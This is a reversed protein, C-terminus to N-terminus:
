GTDQPDRRTASAGERREPPHAQREVSPVQPRSSLRASPGTAGVGRRARSAAAPDPAGVREVASAVMEGLFGAVFCLTGVTVLLMVLYILPRYGVGAVFRLYSAALGVAVGALVFTLGPIGFALMPKRSLRVQFWVAALDLLGVFIRGTGSYKSKGAMRPHLDVDIETASCGAAYAMVVFFRHWDHRLRVMDLIDARFAKMSNLDSVPVAFVRRSLANYISSVARKDYAGVKRATVIDWGEDLKDLFRPIEQPLHQLDADFLVIYKKDTAAAATLLAETKGMNARHRLVRLRAWGASVEEARRATGDTSGDDVIIVDGGLRFEAFTARLQRILEAMNPEEDYAPVVLAFDDYARRAPVERAGAGGARDPANEAPM